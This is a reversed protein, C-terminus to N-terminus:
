ARISGIGKGTAHSLEAYSEWGSEARATEAGLERDYRLLLPMAIFAGIRERIGRPRLVEARTPRHPWDSRLKNMADEEYQTESHRSSM